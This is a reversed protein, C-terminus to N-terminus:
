KMVDKIIHFLDTNDLAKGLFQSGPGASWIVVDTATHEGTYNKFTVTDGPEGEPDDIVIGSDYSAWGDEVIDGSNSLTGYPGIIAFGSTDHDPAIVVLTHNKRHEEANVWELVKIVAENFGLTEAIQGCVNTSHDEWDIQSGEVM